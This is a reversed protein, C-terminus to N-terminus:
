LFSYTFQLVTYTKQSRFFHIHLSYSLKHKHSLVIAIFTYVTPCHMNKAESSIFVLLHVTKHPLVTYTKPEQLSILPNIAKPILRHM